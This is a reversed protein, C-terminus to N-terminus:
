ELTFSTSGVEVSDMYVIVKYVGEMANDDSRKDWNVCVEQAKNEYNIQQKISYQLKVGNAEFSYEDGKGRALILKDPRAIRYYLNKEGAEVLPNEGVTLCIKVRDVRRAKYTTIERNSRGRLNIGQADLNYIRLASGVEVKKNLEENTESLQQNKNKEVNISKKAVDLEQKLERNVTYLSDLQDIYGQQINRLYDLKRKVKRYSYKYSLLEKIEEANAKIISDKETMQETLDGYEAKVTKHQSMLSDLEDTLTQKIFARDETIQEVEEKEQMLMWAMAAIAAIFIIISIRYPLYKCKKDDKKEKNASKETM